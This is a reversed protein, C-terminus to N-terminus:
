DIYTKGLVVLPPLSAPQSVQILPKSAPLAVTGSSLHRRIADLEEDEKLEEEVQRGLSEVRALFDQDAKDTSEWEMPSTAAPEEDPEPLSANKWLSIPQSSTSVADEMHSFLPSLERVEHALHAVPSSSVMKAPVTPRGEPKDHTYSLWVEKKRRKPKDAVDAPILQSSISSTADASDATDLPAKDALQLLGSVAVTLASAAATEDKDAVPPSVVRPPPFSQVVIEKHYKSLERDKIKLSDSTSDVHRLQDGSQTQELKSQSVLVRSKKSSLKAAKQGKTVVAPDAAKRSESRNTKEPAPSQQFRDPYKLETGDVNREPGTRGGKPRVEAETATSQHVTRKPIKFRTNLQPLPAPESQRDLPSRPLKELSTIVPVRVFPANDGSSSRTTNRETATHQKVGRTQKASTRTIEPQQAAANSPGLLLSEAPPSPVMEGAEYVTKHDEVLAPKSIACKTQKEESERLVIIESPVAEAIPRDGLMVNFITDQDALRFPGCSPPARELKDEARGEGTALELRSRLVPSHETTGLQEPCNKKCGFESSQAKLQVKNVSPLVPEVGASVVSPKSQADVHLFEDWSFQHAIPLSSEAILVIQPEMQNAIDQSLKGESPKPQDQGPILQHQDSASSSLDLSSEKQKSVMTQQHQDWLPSTQKQQQGSPQNEVQQDLGPSAVQQKLLDSTLPHQSEMTALPQDLSVNAMQKDLGYGTIQQETLQCTHQNSVPVPVQELAALKRTRVPLQRPQLQGSCVEKGSPGEFSQDLVFQPSFSTRQHDPSQLVRSLELQCTVTDSSDDVNEERVSFEIEEKTQEAGCLLNSKTVSESEAVIFATRWTGSGDRGESSKNVVPSGAGKLSYVLSSRGHNKGSAMSEKDSGEGFNGAAITDTTNLDEDDTNDQDTEATSSDSDVDYPVLNCRLVGSNAMKKKQVL